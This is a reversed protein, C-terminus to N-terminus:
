AVFAGVPPPLVACLAGPPRGTARLVGPARPRGERPLTAMHPGAQRVARM